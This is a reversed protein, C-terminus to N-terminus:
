INGVKSFQINIGVFRVHLTSKRPAYRTYVASGPAAKSLIRARLALRRRDWLHVFVIAVACAAIATVNLVDRVVSLVTMEHFESASRYM